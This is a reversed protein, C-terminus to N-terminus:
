PFQSVQALERSSNSAITALQDIRNRWAECGAEIIDDCSEFVRNSFWNGRKYQLINKVPSLEAARPPLFVLTINTPVAHSITTQWGACHM